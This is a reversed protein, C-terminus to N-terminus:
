GAQIAEAKNPAPTNPLHLLTKVGRVGPIKAAARELERIQEPRDVEGRLVVVGNEANISVRDKPVDRGVFLESQVKAALTADNYSPNEPHPHALRQRMGHADSAVKGGARGVRRGVRRALGAARDRAQARRGHGREPDFFYMAAAGTAAGALMTRVRKPRPPEPRIKELLAGPAERVREVLM